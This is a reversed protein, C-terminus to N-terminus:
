LCIIFTVSSHSNLKTQVKFTRTFYVHPIPTWFHDVPNNMASIM